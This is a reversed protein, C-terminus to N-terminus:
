QGPRTLKGATLIAFGFGATVMIAALACLLGYGWAAVIWGGILAGATAALASAANFIGMGEGRGTPSLRAALANGAVSLFPWSLVAICFV